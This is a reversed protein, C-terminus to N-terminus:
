AWPVWPYTMVRSPASRNTRWQRRTRRGTSTSISRAQSWPTGQRARNGKGRASIEAEEVMPGARQVRGSIGAASRLARNRIRM